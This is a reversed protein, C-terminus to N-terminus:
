KRWHPPYAADFGAIREIRALWASISPHSNALDDFYLGLAVADPRSGFRALMQLIPMTAIYAASIKSGALYPHHTLVDELWNLSETAVVAAAHTAGPDKVAEGYSLARILGTEIPDSVTNVVEFIRQWILGTEAPTEGFLPPTPHASELFAMIAVSETIIVGDANLM